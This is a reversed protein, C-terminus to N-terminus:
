PFVLILLATHDALSDCVSYRKRSCIPRYNGVSIKNQFVFVYNVNLLLSFNGFAVVLEQAKPFEVKKITLWQINRNCAQFCSFISSSYVKLGITNKAYKLQFLCGQDYHPRFTHLPFQSKGIQKVTSIPNVEGGEKRARRM